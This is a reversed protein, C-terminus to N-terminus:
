LRERKFSICFLFNVMDQLCGGGYVILLRGGGLNQTANCLVDPLWGETLESSSSAVHPFARDEIKM